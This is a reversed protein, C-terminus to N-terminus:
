IGRKHSKDIAEWLGNLYTAGLARDYLGYGPMAKEGWIMRGHDPRIPGDFGIDYLAKMIEYMDFSGDSSLHAAEEFDQQSHFKLNRVHAFHIRGKLSRIMDPLDNELNTGYSGSCFTVGNHPDDVMKMMRLINEKNIIIRPLGFVSWAPDDPHIAMKIDYENCVPMIRELDGYLSTVFCNRVTTAEAGYNHVTCYLKQGGKELTVYGYKGNLVATDSEKTNVTWDHDLLESVPVPLHYLVDDFRVTWDNIESSDAEPAQYAEVEPTTADSVGDLAEADATTTFNQMDLSYLIGTENDFGLTITQYLGYEYTFQVSTDAEYRDKPVGYISEVDEMLSQQLTVGNPLGVYINQGEATSTDIHIGGILCEAVPKATTDPNAIDVTIQNGDKEFIEGESFSEPQIEKADDGSYVWGLATFDAYSEPIEYTDGWIALQFSNLNKSLDVDYEPIEDSDGSAALNDEPDDDDTSQSITTIPITETKKGCGSTGVLFAAFVATLVWRYKKM